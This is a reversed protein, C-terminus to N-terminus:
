PILISQLFSRIQILNPILVHDVTKNVAEYIKQLLTEFYVEEELQCSASFDEASLIEKLSVM